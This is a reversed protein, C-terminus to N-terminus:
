RVLKCAGASASGLTLVAKVAGPSSVRRLARWRHMTLLMGRQQEFNGGFIFTKSRCFTPPSSIRNMAPLLHFQFLVPHGFVQFYFSSLFIAKVTPRRLTCQSLSNTLFEASIKVTTAEFTSLNFELNNNNIGKRHSPAIM